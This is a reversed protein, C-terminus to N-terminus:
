SGGATSRNIPHKDRVHSALAHLSQLDSRGCGCKFTLSSADFSADYTRAFHDFDLHHFTAALKSAVMEEEAAVAADDWNSRVAEIAHSLFRATVSERSAFSMEKDHTREEVWSEAFEQMKQLRLPLGRPHAGHLRDERVAAVAAAATEKAWCKVRSRHSGCLAAAYSRAIAAPSRSQEFAAISMEAAPLSCARNFALSSAKLDPASAHAVCAEPVLPQVLRMVVDFMGSNREEQVRAREQEERRVHNYADQMDRFEVGLKSNLVRAVDANWFFTLMYTKAYSKANPSYMLTQIHPLGELDARTLRFGQALRYDSTTSDVLCTRCCRVRFPWYVKRIKPAGCMQCGTGALLLVAQKPTMSGDRVLKVAVFSERFKIDEFRALLSHWVRADSQLFEGFVRCACALSRLTRVAACSTAEDVAEASILDCILRMVDDPLAPVDQTVAGDGDKVFGLLQHEACLRELDAKTKAASRGRVNAARLAERMAKM